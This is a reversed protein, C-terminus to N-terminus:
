GRVSAAPLRKVIDKFEDSRTMGISFCDVSSQGMVYQLSEDIYKTLKGAGIIKMGTIGKGQQKMQNLVKLVEPIAADM